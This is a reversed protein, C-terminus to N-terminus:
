VAGRDSFRASRTTIRMAGRRWAIRRALWGLAIGPPLDVWYHQKTALTSYCILAVWLPLVITLWRRLSGSTVAVAVCASYTALAVHLSPFSNLTTDYSVLARYLPDNLFEPSLEQPRPGTVPWFLFCTFGAVMLIAFGIAYRRLQDVTECLWSALLLLYISQYVWVWRPSFPVSRDIFTLELRTPPRLPYYQIAFYGACFVLTLAAGLWLKM